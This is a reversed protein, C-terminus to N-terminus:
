KELLNFSSVRVAGNAGVSFMAVATYSTTGNTYSVLARDPGDFTIDTVTFAKSSKIPSLSNINKRIYTSITDRQSGNLAPTVTTNRPTVSSGTNTNNVAGTPFSSQDQTNTTELQDSTNNRMFIYWYTTAGIILLIVFSVISWLYIHNTTNRNLSERSKNYEATKRALSAEDIILPAKHQPTVSSSSSPMGVYSPLPKQNTDANLNSNTNSNLNSASPAVPTVPTAPTTNTTSTFPSSSVNGVNSSTGFPSQGSSTNGNNSNFPSNGSGSIAEPSSELEKSNSNNNTIDM